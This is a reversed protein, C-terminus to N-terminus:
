VYNGCEKFTIGTLNHKRVAEMFAESALVSLTEWMQVLHQGAPWHSRMIAYGEPVVPAPMLPSRYNGCRPCHKIQFRALSEATMLAVPEVQIALHSDLKRRRYRITCETTLLDIGENALLERARKSIQPVTIRGWVFDNLDKRASTGSMEGISTGPIVAVDRGAAQIIRQRIREFEALNVVRKYTFERRNLFDFKFAPYEFMGNGWSKWEPTCQLCEIRPLHYDYGMDVANDDDHPWTTEFAKVM